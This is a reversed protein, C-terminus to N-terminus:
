WFGIGTNFHREEVRLLRWLNAAAFALVLVAGVQHLLGLWMPVVSMLTAIGLGAQATVALALGVAWLKGTEPMPSRLAQLACGWAVLFLTYAGLRHDLQVLAKDHLFAHLVGGSWDIPAVWKGNMLPWDNYILGARNGAVLAGLLCQLFVLGLLVAGAIVWGRPPRVREAGGRAEMGTWLAFLFIILASGLHITLREPAVATRVSLGSKVMWWGIVGQIGVLVILLGCRWALRAQLRRTALLLLFPVAMVVGVLRGLLRHGWEWWYIEKFQGLTMGRNVLHYEPTTQYGAFAKMWHANDLPPIVGSIPKWQTISLGSHTLRTAGGVVVMALVLAATTFLWIATLESRQTGALRSM